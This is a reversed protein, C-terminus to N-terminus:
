KRKQGRKGAVFFGRKWAPSCKRLFLGLGGALEFVLVLGSVFPDAPPITKGDKLRKINFIAGDPDLDLPFDPRSMKSNGVPM